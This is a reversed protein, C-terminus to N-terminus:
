QHNNWPQKGMDSLNRSGHIVTIISINKTQTLYIIRYGQFILERVDKREEAEPIRRGLEPFDKLNSVTEFLREIFQKAYFISDKYIYAQIGELDDLALETWKIQM